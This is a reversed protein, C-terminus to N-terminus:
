INSRKLLSFCNLGNRGRFRFWAASVSGGGRCITEYRTWKAAPAGSLAACGIHFLEGERSESDHAVSGASILFTIEARYMMSMRLLTDQITKECRLILALMTRKRGMGCSASTKAITRQGLAHQTRRGVPQNSFCMEYNLLPRGLM